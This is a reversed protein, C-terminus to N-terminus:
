FKHLVCVQIYYFNFDVIYIIYTM